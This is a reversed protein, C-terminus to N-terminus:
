GPTDRQCVDPNFWGKWLNKHAEIRGYIGIHELSVIEIFSDGSSGNNPHNGGLFFIMM